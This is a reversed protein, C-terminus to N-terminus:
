TTEVKLGLEKMIEFPMVTNSAGSDIMCNKLTKGNVLISLFFPEVSGLCESVYSDLFIQPIQSVVVEDEKDKMEEKKREKHHHNENCDHREKIDTDRLWAIAKTRHEPIRLLESLPVKVIIQSLVNTMDIFSDFPDDIMMGKKEHQKDLINIAGQHNKITMKPIKEDLKKPVNNPLEFGKPNDMKRPEWKKSTIKVKVTPVEKPKMAERKRLNVGKIFMNAVKGNDEKQTM